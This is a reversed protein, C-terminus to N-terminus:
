CKDVRSIIATLSKIYARECLDAAWELVNSITDLVFAIINVVMELLIAGLNGFIAGLIALEVLLLVITKLVSLFGERIIGDIIDYVTYLAIGVLGATGGVVFGTYISTVLAKFASALAKCLIGLCFFIIAFEASWFIIFAIM